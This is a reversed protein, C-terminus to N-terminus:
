QCVNNATINREEEGKGRDEGERRLVEVLVGAWGALDVGVGRGELVLSLAGRSM